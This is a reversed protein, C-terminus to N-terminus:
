AVHSVEEALKANLSAQLEEVTAELEKIRKGYARAQGDKSAKLDDRERKAEDREQRAQNRHWACRGLKRQLRLVARGRQQLRDLVNDMMVKGDM